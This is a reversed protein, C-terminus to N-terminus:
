AQLLRSFGVGYRTFLEEVLFPMKVLFSKPRAERDHYHSLYLDHRYLFLCSATLEM